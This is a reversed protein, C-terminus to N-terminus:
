ESSPTMNIKRTATGIRVIRLKESSLLLRVSWSSNVEGTLTPLITIPFYKAM